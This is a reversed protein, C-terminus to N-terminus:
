NPYVVGATVFFRVNFLYMYSALQKTYIEIDQKIVLFDHEM